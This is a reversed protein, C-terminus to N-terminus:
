ALRGVLEAGLARGSLYAGEVKPTGWGDGCVGVLRDDLLYAADRRGRPKAVSWRKVLTHVPEAGGLVRSLAARLAPEATDPDGLHRAARAPTSHAVLVPADDGRRRGDDAIWELDVDDNVFAGEFGWTREAFTAVLALVPDWTRTLDGSLSELGPGLLPVAQPDPMALVVASAPRDDVTLGGPGGVAGVVHTVVQAVTARRVDLPRALEEVLSRLAGPAAYRVPGQKDSPDAGAALVAFTDTWERALGTSQWRQVEAAFRDESVTFYSAGLDVARGDVQRSAMRGGIRMGRDLVVVPLGASALTRACAVGSIGAGVVYVPDM